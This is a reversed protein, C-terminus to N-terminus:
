KTFQFQLLLDVVYSTSFLATYVSFDEFKAIESYEFTQIRKEVTNLPKSENKKTPFPIIQMVKPMFEIFYSKCGYEPWQCGLVFSKFGRYDTGLKRGYSPM